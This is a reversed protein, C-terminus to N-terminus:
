LRGLAWRGPFANPIQEMASLVNHLPGQKNQNRSQDQDNGPLEDHGALRSTWDRCGCLKRLWRGFRGSVAFGLSRGAMDLCPTTLAAFPQVDTQYADNGSWAFQFDRKPHLSTVM